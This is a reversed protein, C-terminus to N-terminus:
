YEEMYDIEQKKIEEKELKYLKSKIKDWDIEMELYDIMDDVESENSLDLEKFMKLLDKDNIKNAFCIVYDDLSNSFFECYLNIVNNEIEIFGLHPITMDINRFDWDGCIENFKNIKEKM